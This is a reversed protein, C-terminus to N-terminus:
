QTLAAFRDAEEVPDREVLDSGLELHRGRDDHRDGIERRQRQELGAAPPEGIAARRPRLSVARDAACPRREGLHAAELARAPQAAAAASGIPPRDRQETRVAAVDIVLAQRRQDGLLAALRPADVGTVPTM